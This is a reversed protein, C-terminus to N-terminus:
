KNTPHPHHFHYHSIIRTYAVKRRTAKKQKIQQIKRTRLTQQQKRRLLEILGTLM